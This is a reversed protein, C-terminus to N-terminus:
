DTNVYNQTVKQKTQEKFIKSAADINFSSDCFFGQLRKKWVPIKQKNKWVPTKKNTKCLM